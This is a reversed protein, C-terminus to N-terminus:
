VIKHTICNYMRIQFDVQKQKQQLEYRDSLKQKQRLKYTIMQFISTISVTMFTLTNKVRSILRDQSHVCADDWSPRWNKTM